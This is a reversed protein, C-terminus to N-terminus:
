LKNIEAQDRVEAASVQVKLKLAASEVAHLFAPHNAQRPDLLVTVRGVPPAVEKLVELWKGAISPDFDTFGTINGGPRAYSSVFGSGIPDAIQVFVIPITSNLQKLITLLPTSNAVIVDAPQSAFQSAYALM